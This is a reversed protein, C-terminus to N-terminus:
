VERNVGRENEDGAIVLGGAEGCCGVDADSLELGDTVGDCGDCVKFSSHSGWRESGNTGM